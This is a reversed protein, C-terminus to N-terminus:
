ISSRKWLARPSTQRAPVWRPAPLLHHFVFSFDTELYSDSAVTWWQSCIQPQTEAAKNARHTPLSTQQTSSGTAGRTLSLQIGLWSPNLAFSELWSDQFTNWPKGLAAPSCSGGLRAQHQGLTAKPATGTRTTCVAFVKGRCSSVPQAGSARSRQVHLYLSGKGASSRLHTHAAWCLFRFISWVQAGLGATPASVQVGPVRENGLSAARPVPYTNPSLVCCGMNAETPKVLLISLGPDRWHSWIEAPKNQTPQMQLRLKAKKGLSALLLTSSVGHDVYFRRLLFEKIYKELTILSTPFSNKM